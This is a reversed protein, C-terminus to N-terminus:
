CAIARFNTHDPSLEFEADVNHSTHDDDDVFMATKGSYESKSAIEPSTDEEIFDIIDKQGYLLEFLCDDGYSAM